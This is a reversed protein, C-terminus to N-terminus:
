EVRLAEELRLDLEVLFSEMVKDVAVKGLEAGKIKRVDKVLACIVAAKGDMAQWGKLGALAAAELMSQRPPEQKPHDRKLVLHAGPGDLAHFWIDYPSAALSLLKHNAAKNRGRLLLFGDTTRFRQVALGQASKNRPSPLLPRKEQKQRRPPPAIRGQRLADLEQVLMDRRALLLPIGREGKAALRFFREMNEFISRAPDLDVRIDGGEALPLTLHHRKQKSNLAYLRAQIALAQTRLRRLEDMRQLEQEVKALGRKLRKAAAKRATRQEADEALSLQSFLAIQGAYGAADVASPFCREEREKRPSEPLRWPLAEAESQGDSEKLYVWYEQCHGETLSRHLEEAEQAPLAALTRRLVPSVHPHSRWVDEDQVIHRWDLPSPEQEFNPDLTHVLEPGSRLCLLLHGGEAGSLSWAMRRGPWDISPELLRRGVLRKRLWMVGAEPTAPNPPKEDSLFLLPERNGHRLLLYRGGEANGLDFTLVNAGPGFVKQIRRGRLLVAIERTLCRFFHSEMNAPRSDFETPLTVRWPEHV